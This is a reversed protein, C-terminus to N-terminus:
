AGRYNDYYPSSISRTMVFVIMNNIMTNVYEGDYYMHICDDVGELVTFTKNTFYKQLYKIMYVYDDDSIYPPMTIEAIKTTKSASPACIRITRIDYIHSVTALTTKKSIIPTNHNQTFKETTHPECHFNHILQTYSVSKCM